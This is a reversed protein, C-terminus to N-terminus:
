QKAMQTPGPPFGTKGHIIALIRFVDCPICEEPLWWCCDLDRSLKLVYNSKTRNDNALFHMFHIISTSGYELSINNKETARAGTLSSDILRAFYNFHSNHKHTQKNTWRLLVIHARSKSLRSYVWARLSDRRRIIVRLRFSKHNLIAQHPDRRRELPRQVQFLLFKTQSM